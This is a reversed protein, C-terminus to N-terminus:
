PFWKILAGYHWMHRILLIAVERLSIKFDELLVVLSTLRAVLRAEIKEGPLVGSVDIESGRWTIVWQM